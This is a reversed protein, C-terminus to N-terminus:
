YYAKAYVGGGSSGSLIYIVLPGGQYTSLRVGLVDNALVDTGVSEWVNQNLKKLHLQYSSDTYGVYIDGNLIMMDSHNYYDAIAPGQTEWNTSTYNYKLVLLQSPTGSLQTLYLDGTPTVFFCQISTMSVTKVEQWQGLTNLKMVTYVNWASSYAIYLDGSASAVAAKVYGTYYNIPSTYAVFNGFIDYKRVILKNSSSLVYTVYFNNSAAISCGAIAHSYISETPATSLQVWGGAGPYNFLDLKNGGNSYAVYVDEATSIPNVMIGALMALNSGMTEGYVNQWANNIYKKAQVQYASSILAVTAVYPVGSSDHDISIQIENTADIFPTASAGLINWTPTRSPNGSNGGSSGSEKAVKGCGSFLILGTVM